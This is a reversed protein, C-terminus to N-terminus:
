YHSEETDAIDAYGILRFDDEGIEESVAVYKRGDDGLGSGDGNLRVSVGNALEVRGWGPGDYSEGTIPIINKAKPYTRMNEGTLSARIRRAAEKNASGDHAAAELARWEAPTLTVSRAESNKRPARNLSGPRRPM